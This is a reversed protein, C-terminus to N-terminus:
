RGTRLRVAGGAVHELLGPGTFVTDAPRDLGFGARLYLDGAIAVGSVMSAAAAIAFAALLPPVARIAGTRM